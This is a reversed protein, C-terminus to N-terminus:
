LWKEVKGRLLEGTGRLVSLYKFYFSIFSLIFHLFLWKIGIQIRVRVRVYDGTIVALCVYCFVVNDRV